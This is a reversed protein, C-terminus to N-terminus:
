KFLLCSGSNTKLSCFLLAVPLQVRLSFHPECTAKQGPRFVSHQLLPPQRKDVNVWRQALMNQRSHVSWGRKPVEAAVWCVYGININAWQRRRQALMLGANTCRRTEKSAITLCECSLSLFNTACMKKPQDYDFTHGDGSFATGSIANIQSQWWIFWTQWRPWSFKEM